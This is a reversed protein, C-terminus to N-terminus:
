EVKFEAYGWVWSESNDDFRGISIVRYRGVPFPKDTQSGLTYEIKATEKPNLLAVADLGPVGCYPEWSAGNWREFFVDYASNSFKITKNADNRLTIIMHDGQHYVMKEIAVNLLLLMPEPQKKAVVDFERQAEVVIIQGGQNLEGRSVVRYKGTHFNEEKLTYILAAKYTSGSGIPPLMSTNSSNGISLLFEWKGNVWEDFHIGYADDKFTISEEGTNLIYIRIVDGVYYADKDTILVLSHPGHLMPSIFATISAASTVGLIISIAIFFLLKRHSCVEGVSM